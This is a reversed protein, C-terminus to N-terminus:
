RAKPEEAAEVILWNLPRRAAALELGVQERVATLFSGPDKGDWSLEYDYAGKIETEDFIPHGLVARGAGVLSAVSSGVVELRGRADQKVTNRPPVGAPRLRPERGELRRLLYVDTERSEQRVKLRFTSEMAQRVLARMAAEDGDPTVVAVDYRAQSGWAPAEIQDPPIGHMESLLRHLTYGYAEWGGPTKRRGGPSM